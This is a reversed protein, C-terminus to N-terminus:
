RIARAIYEPVVWENQTDFFALGVKTKNKEMYALLDEDTAHTTGLISNLVDRSNAKLLQPELTGFEADMDYQIHISAVNGFDAYKRAVSDPDGDNDTVVDVERNLLRAIELFRKFALSHVTIVDVGDELPTKGHTRFYARQVLLEDSPGEVLIARKSLILRLTDYGALKMFYEYTSKPLEKLHISRDRTFLLVSEIGLKNLVFSSHTTIILQRHGRNEKIHGILENLSAYSLHSEAEEILVLHSQSSAELAMKIKVKNQEGKGILPMPIDDLHPMIGSEWSARATTDLSVSLTKNSITGRKGALGNNITTIRPDGLFQDKMLRYSLALEVQEKKTLSDKLIDVVYRNAALGNRMASADILSPKLPISRATVENNSFGRLSCRYYEVPLTKILDPSAIYTAYEDNFDANFALELVVGPADEGLSNNTGKLNALEPLDELYLEVTAAPPRAGNKIGAIYELVADRNFLHPHIEGQIPRGNLQGSLALNIAEIFTSKGCENEGVIINLEDNLHVTAKRLCRYNQIVVKKIRM